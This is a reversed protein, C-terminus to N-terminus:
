FEELNYKIKMELKQIRANVTLTQATLTETGFAQQNSCFSM